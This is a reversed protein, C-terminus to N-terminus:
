GLVDLVAKMTSQELVKKALRAADEYSCERLLYKVESIEGASMSFEDLGMGLLMEVAKKDSAFEGCMGVKVKHKHASQIVHYIAYLVPPTFSNYLSSVKQNGRDVALMYQTLDNTGISFFTVHKAFEEAMLVSSPTEIMMGVQINEDFEVKEERLQKKCLELIENAAKLEELSIIMPYMIRIYGFASARLIARLQTILIEPKDLCIRIARYGLFPNEEQPFEFYDLGKDGGIDLTRITLEKGELLIAAEKYVEFQEEETPFHDTEMYLFESRFLGIGQIQHEIANKIDAISGVNACLEFMHGDKTESPLQSLRELEEKHKKFTQALQEYKAITCTDPNLFIDGAGADMVILDKNQIESLLDGAGVLCPISMNKAIISVHSTVGGTETLFGLVLSMDMKATDSPTLEHAVIISSTDMKAFPNDDIGNLICLLRQVVDKMDDARDKMYENDMNQFIFIFEDRTQELAWEVNDLNDKIKLVVSEYLAIDQVLALHGGFIESKVALEELDKKANEVADEYKKIETEVQEPTIKNKNIVLEQKHVVYAPGIAFGKSSTKNVKWAKMELVGSNELTVQLPM